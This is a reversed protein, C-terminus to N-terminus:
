VTKDQHPFLLYFTSGEGAGSHVWIKGHYLSMIKACAYLGIGSGRQTRMHHLRKGMNFIQNKNEKPIGIGNDQISYVIWKKFAKSRIKIHPTQTNYKIGNEIINMFLSALHDESVALPLLKGTEIKLDPYLENLLLPEIREKFFERVNCLSAPQNTKELLSLEAIGQILDKMRKIAQHVGSLLYQAEPNIDQLYHKELIEFYSAFVRLPQSLDHCAFVTFSELMSKANELEENKEKLKEKKWLLKEQAEFFRTDDITLAAVKSPNGFEDLIFFRHVSFHHWTGDTMFYRYSVNGDKNLFSQRVASQDDPHMREFLIEPNEKFKDLSFGYFTEFKPSAYYFKSGDGSRLWIIAHITNLIKDLYKSNLSSDLSDMIKVFCGFESHGKLPPYIQFFLSLSKAGNIIWNCEFQIQQIKNQFLFSLNKLVYKKFDADGMFESLNHGLIQEERQKILRLFERNVKIITGRSDILIGGAKVEKLAGRLM